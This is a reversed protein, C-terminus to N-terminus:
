QFYRGMREIFFVKKLEFSKPALATIAAILRNFNEFTVLGEENQFTTIIACIREKLCSKTCISLCCIFEKFLLGERGGTLYSNFIKRLFLDSMELIPEGEYSERKLVTYFGEVLRMFDGEGIVPQSILQQNTFDPCIRKQLLKIEKETLRTVKSLTYANGTNSSNWKQSTIEHYELIYHERRERDIEIDFYAEIFAANDINEFYEELAKYSREQIINDRNLYIIALFAKEIVEFSREKKLQEWVFILNTFSLIGIFVSLLAKSGTLEIVMKTHAMEEESLEKRILNRKVKTVYYEYYEKLFHIEALMGYLAVGYVSREFFNPPFM